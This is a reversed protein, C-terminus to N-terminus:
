PTSRRSLQRRAAVNTSLIRFPALGASRGISCGVFSNTILTFVALASPRVIGGATSVRALWIISYRHRKNRGSIDRNASRPCGAFDAKRDSNPALVSMAFKHTWPRALMHSWYGKEIQFKEISNAAVPAPVKFRRCWPANRCIGCIRANTCTGSLRHVSKRSM